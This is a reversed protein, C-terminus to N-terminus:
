NWQKKEVTYEFGLKKPLGWEKFTGKKTRIKKKTSNDLSTMIRASARTILSANLLNITKTKGFCKRLLLYIIEIIGLIL